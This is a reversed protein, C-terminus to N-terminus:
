ASTNATTTTVKGVPGAIRWTYKVTKGATYAKSHTSEKTTPSTRIAKQETHWRQEAKQRRRNRKAGRPM